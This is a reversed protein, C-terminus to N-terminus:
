RHGPNRTAVKISTLFLLHSAWGLFHGAQFLVQCLDNSGLCQASCPMLGGKGATKEWEMKGNTIGCLVKAAPQGGNSSVSM